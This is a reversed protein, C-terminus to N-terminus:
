QKEVVVRGEANLFVHYRNGDRCTAVHDNEGRTIVSVVEGCPMGQLTIVTFLDKKVADDDAAIAPRRWAYRLSFRSPREATIEDLDGRTSDSRRSSRPTRFFAGSRNARPWSQPPWRRLRQGAAAVLVKLVLLDYSRRLDALTTKLKGQYYARFQDLLDDVQNKLTLRPSCASPRPTRSGSSRPVRPRAAASGGQRKAGFHGAQECAASGSGSREPEESPSEGGGAGKGGIARSHQRPGSRSHRVRVHGADAAAREDARDRVARRPCAFVRCGGTGRHGGNGAAPQGAAIARRATTGASCLRFDGRAPSRWRVAATLDRREAHMEALANRVM